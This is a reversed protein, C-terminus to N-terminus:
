STPCRASSRPWRGWSAVVVVFGDRVRMRRDIPRVSLGVSAGYIVAVAASAAYPLASEGYFPALAAPLLQFAGLGVLLWGLIRLDLLLNM